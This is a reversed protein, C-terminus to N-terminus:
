DFARSPSHPRGAAAVAARHSVVLLGVLAQLAVLWWLWCQAAPSLRRVYRCLSWVLATLLVTQVSTAVLRGLALDIFAGM